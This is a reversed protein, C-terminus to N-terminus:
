HFATFSNSTVPAIQAKLMSVSTPPPKYYRKKEFDIFGEFTIM